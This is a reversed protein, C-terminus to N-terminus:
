NSLERPNFNVTIDRWQAYHEPKLM